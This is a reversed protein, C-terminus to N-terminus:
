FTSFGAGWSVVANVDDDDDDDGNGDERSSSGDEL